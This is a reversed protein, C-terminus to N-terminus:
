EAKKRVRRRREPCEQTVVFHKRMSRYHHVPHAKTFYDAMNLKGPRWKIIFHGQQSRNRLWHFRMDMTKSRKQKVTGNVIGVACSNDAELQTAGQPYGLDELTTRMVEAAQGNIFM